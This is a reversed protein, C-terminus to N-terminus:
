NPPLPVSKPIIKQKQPTQQSEQAKPQTPESVGQVLFSIPKQNTQRLLVLVSEKQRYVKFHDINKLTADVGVRSDSTLPLTYNNGEVRLLQHEEKAVVWCVKANPLEHLSNVTKEICLRSFEDGEITINGDSGAIDLFLTQTLLNEQVSKKLHGFLQLNSNQLIGLSKYLALLVLSLLAISILLEILTFARRLM